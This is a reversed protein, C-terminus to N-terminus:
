YAKPSTEKKNLNTLNLIWDAIKTNDKIRHSVMKLLWQAIEGSKKIITNKLTQYVKTIPNIINRNMYINSKKLHM